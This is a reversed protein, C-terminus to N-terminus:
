RTKAARQVAYQVTPNNRLDRLFQDTLARALEERSEKTQLPDLKFTPQFVQTVPAPRRRIEAALAVVAGATSTPAAGPEGAGDAGTSVGGGGGGRPYRERPDEGDTGRAFSGFSTRAMEDAPIVMLGEGAHIRALMDRRVHRLGITGSAFSADPRGGGHGNMDKLEKLMDRQVAVSEVLPDAVISIGNAKAEEILKKTNEDLDQGTALSANLQERLLPAIAGFGAKTAEAPALGAAEAASV